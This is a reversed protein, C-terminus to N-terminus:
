HHSACLGGLRRRYSAELAAHTADTCLHLKESPDLALQLFLEECGSSVRELADTEFGCGFGCADCGTGICRLSFCRRLQRRRDCGSREIVALRDSDARINKVAAVRKQNTCM